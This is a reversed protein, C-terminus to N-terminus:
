GASLTDWLDFSTAATLDALDAMGMDDGSKRPVALLALAGRIGLDSVPTTNAEIINRSRALRMYRQSTRESLGCSKLLPLWAGHKKLQTKAEILIDGAAMAHVVSTKLAEGVAAHEVKLRERLDALSNSGIIAAKM